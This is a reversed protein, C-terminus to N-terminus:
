APILFLVIRNAVNSPKKIYSAFLVHSISSNELGGGGIFFVKLSYIPDCVILM